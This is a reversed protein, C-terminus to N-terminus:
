PMEWIHYFWIKDWNHINCGCLKFIDHRSVNLQDTNCIWQVYINPEVIFIHPV